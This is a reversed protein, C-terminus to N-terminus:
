ALWTCFLVHLSPRSAAQLRGRFLGLGAPPDNGSVGGRSVLLVGPATPRSDVSRPTAHSQPLAEGSPLSVHRCFAPSVTESALDDTMTGPYEVATAPATASGVAAATCPAALLLGLALVVATASIVGSLPISRFTTPAQVM